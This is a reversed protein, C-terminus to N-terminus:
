ASVESDETSDSSNIVDSFSSQKIKKLNQRGWEGVFTSSIEVSPDLSQMLDWGEIVYGFPAYQGNIEKVRTADIDKFPLIFFESSAGNPNRDPHNMAVLGPIDFTLFPHVYNKVRDSEYNLATEAATTAKDPLSYYFNSRQGALVLELPIRRPRGTLPDVFGDLFSGWIPTLSTSGGSGEDSVEKEKGVVGIMEDIQQVTQVALAQATSELQVVANELKGVLSDVLAQDEYPSSSPQQKWRKRVIKIPLGTYFNRISLDVFNGATLPAAYGDAVITVNGLPLITERKQFPNNGQNTSIKQVLSFTVRARGLLRPLAAFKQETPVAYPFEKVLLEGIESLTIKSSKILPYLSLALSSSTMGNNSGSTTTTTTTTTTTISTTCIQLMTELNYRLSELLQEFRENRMIQLMTDEDNLNFTPELKGRYSDLYHLAMQCKKTISDRSTSTGLLTLTQTTSSTTTGSYAATSPIINSIISVLNQFVSNRVPLLQLLCDEVTLAKSVSSLLSTPLELESTDIATNYSKQRKKKQSRLFAEAVDRQSDTYGMTLLVISSSVMTACCSQLVFGRRSQPKVQFMEENNVDERGQSDVTKDKHTVNGKYNRMHKDDDEEDDNDDHADNRGSYCEHDIRHYGYRCSQERSNSRQIRNQQRGVCWWQRRDGLFHNKPKYCRRYSSALCSFRSSLNSSSVPCFSHLSTAIPQPFAVVFGLLLLFPWILARLYQYSISM